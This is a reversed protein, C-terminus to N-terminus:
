TWKLCDPPNNTLSVQYVLASRDGSVLINTLLWLPSMHAEELLLWNLQPYVASLLSPQECSLGWLALLLLHLVDVWVLQRSHFLYPVRYTRYRICLCMNMVLSLSTLSHDCHFCPQISSSVYEICVISVLPPFLLTLTFITFSKIHALQKKPSIFLCSMVTLM